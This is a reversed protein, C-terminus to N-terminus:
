YGNLNFHKGTFCSFQQYIIPCSPRRMKKFPRIDGMFIQTMSPRCLKGNLLPYRANNGHTM